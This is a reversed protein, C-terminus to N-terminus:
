RVRAYDNSAHGTTHLSFSVPKASKSRLLDDLKAACLPCDRIHALVEERQLKPLSKAIFAEMQSEVHTCSVGGYPKSSPNDSNWSSSQRLGFGAMVLFVLSFSVVARRILKQNRDKSAYQVLTGEECRDWQDNAKINTLM